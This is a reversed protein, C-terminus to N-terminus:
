GLRMMYRCGERKWTIVALARYPTGFSCLALCFQGRSVWEIVYRGPSKVRQSRESMTAWGGVDSWQQPQTNGFAVKVGEIWGLRSRGRSRGRSVEVILVRRVMRHELFRKVHRFWRLVRQDTGSELKREIVARRRMEENKVRDLRSVGVLSRLCKMESCKSEM